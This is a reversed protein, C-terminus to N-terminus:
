YLEPQVRREGRTAHFPLNSKDDIFPFDYDYGICFIIVDVHPAFSPSSSSSSTPSSSLITEVHQFQISGDENIGITRPVVVINPGYHQPVDTTCSPTSVYVCKAVHSLERAIDCGSSRGGVCLVTQGAFPEPHDYDVAHLIQGKFYEDLGYLKPISPIAFHGNCVMVADFIDEKTVAMEQEKWTLRFQPWTEHNDDDVPSSSLFSSPSVCSTTDDVAQLHEVTTNFQIYKTLDFERQYDQFYKLVETHTVFSSTSTTPAYTWPKERFGMIEKPCIPGYDVTCRITINRRTTSKKTTEDNNCSHNPKYTGYVELVPGQRIGGTRYWKSFPCSCIGIWSSRCRHNSGQTTKNDDHSFDYNYRKLSICHVNFSSVFTHCYIAGRNYNRTPCTIKDVLRFIGAKQIIKIRFKNGYCDNTMM